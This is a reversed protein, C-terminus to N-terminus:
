FIKVETKSKKMFFCHIKDIFDPHLYTKDPFDIEKIIQYGNKKYYLVLKDMVTVVDLLVTEVKDIEFADNEARQLLLSGLNHGQYSPDISLLGMEAQNRKTFDLVLTGCIENEPSLCLYLRKKPHNIIAKLENPYIRERKLYFHKKYAINIVKTIKELVQIDCSPCVIIKFQSNTPINLM